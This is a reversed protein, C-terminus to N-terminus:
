YPAPAQEPPQLHQQTVNESAAKKALASIPVVQFGKTELQPLWERLAQITDPKPHGIAIAVGNKRATKELIELQGRVAVLDPNDDLFVDRSFAPVSHEKAIKEAVSNSITRSDLFLLGNEHLTKMMPQLARRDQTFKSGMHNNIGVYGVFKNLNVSLKQQLEEQTMVTMLTNSGTDLKGDLPEMPVHVMIEFGRQRAEGAYKISRNGYPLFSLTLPYNLEMMEETRINNIGMDDIVIVIPILESKLEFPASNLEWVSQSRVEPEIVPSQEQLNQTDPAPATELVPQPVVDEVPREIAVTVPEVKQIKKPAPFWTPFVQTAVIMIAIAIMLFKGKGGGQQHASTLKKDTTHIKRGFKNM